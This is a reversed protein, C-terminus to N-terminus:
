WWDDAKWRLQGLFRDLCCLLTRSASYGADTCLFNWQIHCRPNIWSDEFSNLCLSPYFQVLHYPQLVICIVFTHLQSWRKARRRLCLLGLLHLKWICNRLGPQEGLGWVQSNAKACTGSGSSFPAQNTITHAIWFPCQLSPCTSDHQWLVNKPLCQLLISYSETHDNKKAFNHLEWAPRKSLAMVPEDLTRLCHGLCIKIINADDNWFTASAFCPTKWPNEIGLIRYTGHHAKLGQIVEPSGFHGQCNFIVSKLLAFLTPAHPLPEKRLNHSCFIFCISVHYM